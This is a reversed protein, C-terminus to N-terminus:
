KLYAMYAYHEHIRDPSTSVFDIRNSSVKDLMRISWYDAAQEGGFGIIARNDLVRRIRRAGEAITEIVLKDLRIFPNHEFLGLKQYVPILKKVSDARNMNLVAATFDNGGFFFGTLACSENSITCFRELLLYAGSTEVMIALEVFPVHEGEARIEQAIENLWESFKVVEAPLTVMSMLLIFRQKHDIKRVETIANLYARIEAKALEKNFMHLRTGRAGHFTESENINTEVVQRVGKEDKDHEKSFIEIDLDPPFLKNNPMCLTRTVSLGGRNALMLQKYEGEVFTMFRKLAVDIEKQTFVTQGLTIVRLENLEPKRTFIRETRLLGIGFNGPKPEIVLQDKKQDWRISCGALRAQVVGSVTHVTGAIEPRHNNPLESTYRLVQSVRSDQLLEKIRDKYIQYLETRVFLRWGTQPGHQNLSDIIIDTLIKYLEPLIANGTACAGAYISGTSGDITILEGDHIRRSSAGGENLIDIYGPKLTVSIPSNANGIFEVAREQMQHADGGILGKLGIISPLGESKAQVACWSNPSADCSLFAVSNHLHTLDDVSDHDLCLAYPANIHLEDVAERLLDLNDRNTILYAVRVGPHMPTGSAIEAETTVIHNKFLYVLDDDSLKLM